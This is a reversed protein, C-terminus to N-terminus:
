HHHADQRNRQRPPKRAQTIFSSEKTVRHGYLQIKYSLTLHCFCESKQLFYHSELLKYIICKKTV